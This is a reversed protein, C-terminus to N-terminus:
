IEPRLGKKEIPNRNEYAGMILNAFHTGLAFLDKNIMKLLRDKWEETLAADRNFFQDHKTRIYNMANVFSQEFCDGEESTKAYDSVFRYSLEGILCGDMFWKYEDFDYLVINNQIDESIDRFLEWDPLRSAANSNFKLEYM